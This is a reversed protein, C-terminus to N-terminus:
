NSKEDRMLNILNNNLHNKTLVIIVIVPLIIFVSICLFYSIFYENFFNYIHNLLLIEKFTNKLILLIVRYFVIGTLSSVVSLYLMQMTSIAIVQVDSYGLAKSVGCEFLNSNIKKKVYLISIVIIAVMILIVAIICISKLKAVSEYDAGGKLSVGYGMNELDEIVKQINEYKDVVVVYSLARNTEPDNLGKVSVDYIEKMDKPSIYCVNLDNFTSDLTDFLGVIKFERNLKDVVKPGNDYKVVNTEISFTKNLLDKKYLIGKKLSFSQDFDMSPFFYNSCIAVGTANKDFMEGAVLKPMTSKSGYLLEIQGDYIDNKFSTIGSYFNDLHFYYADEVHNMNLINNYGYDYDADDWHKEMEADSPDVILSRFDSSIIFNKDIDELFSTQYNLVGLLLISLILLVVIFYISKKDRIIKLYSYRLLDSVKM